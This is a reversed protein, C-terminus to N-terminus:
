VCCSKAEGYNPINNRTQKRFHLTASHLKGQTCTWRRRNWGILMFMMVCRMSFFMKNKPKTERAWGGLFHRKFHWCHHLRFRCIKMKSQSVPLVSVNDHHCGYVCYIRFNWLEEKKKATEIVWAREINHAKRVQNHCFSHEFRGYKGTEPQWVERM